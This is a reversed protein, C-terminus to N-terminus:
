PEIRPSVAPTGAPPPPTAKAVGLWALAALLLVGAGFERSTSVIDGRLAVDYGALIAPVGMALYSVVFLVSLVGARGAPPLPAIVNRLAGQFGTGFGMGAVATGVMFLVVSHLSLSALVVAMGFMLSLAGMRSLFRASRDRLLVVAVVGGGAMIFLALGGLLSSGSGVLSRLLTPGLSAYFGGLGWVAVVAPAALLLPMRVEPPLAFGPKLSAWAGPRRRATEAIFFVGVGQLVFIAGLIVYILHTPAPLYQVMLGAVIGGTGTGLMPALANALAGRTKDIDLMGAGVAAIAAGASLGQIIRGALLDALGGATAFVVMAAAQAVAAAMLVPRRGIHDSLRGAVLLAVLVALAYSGFVVTLMTTSFGWQQQYIAYLPTPAASGALFAVTISALLHFSFRSSLRGAAQPCASAPVAKAPSVCTM